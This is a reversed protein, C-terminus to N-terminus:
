AREEGGDRGARRLERRASREARIEDKVERELDERRRQVAAKRVGHSFAALKVAPGGVVSTLLGSLASLDSSADGVQERVAAVAAREDRVEQAAAGVSAALPAASEGVRVVLEEAAGLVRAVRHLVVAVAGVLVALLVVAALALADAADM